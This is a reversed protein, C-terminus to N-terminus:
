NSRLKGLRIENAPRRGPHCSVPEWTAMGRMAQDDLKSVRFCKDGLVVAQRGFADPSLEIPEVPAKPPPANRLKEAFQPNFVRRNQPETAESAQWESLIRDRSQRLSRPPTTVAQPISTPPSDDVSPLSSVQSDEPTEVSTATASTSNDRVASLLTVRLTNTTSVPQPATVTIGLWFCGGVSIMVLLWVWDSRALKTETVLRERHYRRVEALSLGAALKRRAIVYRDSVM